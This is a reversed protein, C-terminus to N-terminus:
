KRICRVNAIETLEWAVLEIGSGGDNWRYTDQSYAGDTCDGRYGRDSVGLHLIIPRTGSIDEITSSWYAGLFGDRSEIESDGNDAQFARYSGNYPLGLLWALTTQNWRAYMMATEWDGRTPLRYGSACPGNRTDIQSIKRESDLISSLGNYSSFASFRAGAFFWGSRTDSGRGKTLANCSAWMQGGVIRDPNSCGPYTHGILPLVFALVLVFIRSRM